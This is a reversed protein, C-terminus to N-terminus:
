ASEADPAGEIAVPEPLAPLRELRRIEDVTIAGLAHMAGYYATRQAPDTQLYGRTELEAWTGYPLLGTIADEYVRKWPQITDDVRDQREDQINAYTNGSSAGSDLARASLNFAHAVSRLVMHDVEVLQADIPSISIPTFDTTANLVAISRRDGGHAKLWAEKLELAQPQSLNQATVKLYGSPVGSRFTGSTYGRVQVAMRLTAAHRGLVGTGDGFPEILCVLRWTLGGLEYRGERDTTIGDVEDGIRWAGDETTDIMANSLVRLSGAVPQGDTNEAFTLYGKGLWLANTLMEGWFRVATRREWAPFASGGPGPRKGVLMPDSLWLPPDGLDQAAPDSRWSGRYVRWPLVSTLPGVILGTAREVAAPLGGALGHGPGNPGIASIGDEVSQGVWTFQYPDQATVWGDPSNLLM